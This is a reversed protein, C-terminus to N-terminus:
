ALLEQLEKINKVRELELIEKALHDIKEEPLSKKAYRACDKFKAVLEADTMPNEPHGYPIDERKLLSRGEKTRVEVVGPGTPGKKLQPDFKYKVKKAIELVRPDKLNKPFFDEIVVRGKAFVVGMIFPLSLKANISLRPRQKEELPSFLRDRGHKGVTLIVEEIRDPEIGYETIINLAAKIYTHAPRVCPWPKFGVKLGMFERGLNSTMSPADYDNGYFVKYLKEIGEKCANIGKKAMLAALVGERNGYGDRIARVESERSNISEIIGSTRDLVIGFANVMEDATLGLMKGAAATASFSGFVTMPLWPYDELLGGKPAASLRVNLDIGLAVANIFEKGSVSGVREAVALAAPFTHGSPHNSFEDITDDYDLPHCLSGNVFAAMWCPGKGGFGIFTSEPNGGGERAIEELAICGKELTSPPFMVGLIDLIQRKTKEIVATSLAEYRTNVINEALNRTLSM